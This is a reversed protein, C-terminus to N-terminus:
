KSGWHGRFFERILPRLAGRTMESTAHDQHITAISVVMCFSVAVSGARINANSLARSILRPLAISDLALACISRGRARDPRLKYDQFNSCRYRPKFVINRSPVFNVPILTAPVVNEGRGLSILSCKRRCM